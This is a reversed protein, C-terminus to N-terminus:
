YGVAAVLHTDFGGLLKASWVPQGFVDWPEYRELTRGTHAEPTTCVCIGGYGMPMTHDMITGVCTAAVCKPLLLQHDLPFDNQPM